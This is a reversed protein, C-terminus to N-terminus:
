GEEGEEDESNRGEGVRAAPGLVVRVDKWDLPRMPRPPRNPFEPRRPVAAPPVFPEVDRSGTARREDGDTAARDQTAAIVGDEVAVVQQDVAFALVAAVEIGVHWARGENATALPDPGILADARNALGAVGARNAAMEVELDVNV